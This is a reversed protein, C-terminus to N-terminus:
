KWGYKPLNGNQNYSIKWIPQFWWGTLLIAWHVLSDLNQDSSLRCCKLCFPGWWIAITPQHRQHRFPQPAPISIDDNSPSELRTMTKFTQLRTVLQQRHWRGTIQQECHASAKNFNTWRLNSNHIYLEGHSGLVKMKPPNYGMNQPHLVKMKWPKPTWLCCNTKVIVHGMGLIGILYDVLQRISADPNQTFKM